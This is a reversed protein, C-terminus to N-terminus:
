HWKAVTDAHSPQYHAILVIAEIVVMTIQTSSLHNLLGMVTRHISSPFLYIWPIVANRVMMKEPM